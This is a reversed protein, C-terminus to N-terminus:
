ANVADSASQLYSLYKPTSGDRPDFTSWPHFSNGADTYVSFAANANLQPDYLMDFNPGFEPHAKAYIQWLGRSGLGQPTNAATEPNYARPNGRSEALAVAIATVLDDGSFGANVAFNKIETPNYNLPMTDQNGTQTTSAKATVATALMAAIIIIIIIFVNM